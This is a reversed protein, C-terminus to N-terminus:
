LGSCVIRLMPRAAIGGGPRCWDGSTAGFCSRLRIPVGAKAKPNRLSSTADYGAPGAVASPKALWGSEFWLGSIQRVIAFATVGPEVIM